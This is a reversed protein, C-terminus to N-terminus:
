INHNKCSIYDSLVKLAENKDAFAGNLQSAYFKKVIIGIEKGPTMGLNLLDRGLIFPKPKSELELYVNRKKIIWNSVEDLKTFNLPNTVRSQRDAFDLLILLEEYGFMDKKLRSIASLKIVKRNRYLEYIRHHYKILSLILTKTSTM